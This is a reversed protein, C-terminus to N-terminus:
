HFGEAIVAPLGSDIGALVRAEHPVTPEPLKDLAFWELGVAKGPEM